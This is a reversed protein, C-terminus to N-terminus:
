EYKAAEGQAPVTANIFERVDSNASKLDEARLYMMHGSRYGKFDIRDQMKGSPDLHWATYKADFYNTAGDYYGSQVLVNLYPNQAMAQRLNEGTNNNTRDWPHVPGFMNYKVDTKYNLEERLYYNIAPTFSHLWSTLEANYDPSDGVNDRDIGLYRSDLRGVTQERDRLLEKWFFRPSIDLNARLVTQQSLGSFRAVQEAIQAREDSPLMAGKALAPLYTNLTYAEVESLVDLLDKSQLEEGLADHYWATAAFYPLRNAASVPGQRDIGIDTPSVLIVGNLYMWQRNQLELALGSVRTTGYSEGILYKPSRWREHRTVFTNVWDALYKVDANVGFFMKQQQERSPMEGEANPLVRSYGTNVPNVFVIDAVDLVSHPNDKVGYPMIPFGEDDVRLSKPGTYAIHMWVSASGPGGNFSILLPREERNKVDQREYYTFFLAATAEGSDNFVPQTGTTATYEFRDGNISARHKTVVVDDAAIKAVPANQEDAFSLPSLLLAATVCSASLAKSIVNM